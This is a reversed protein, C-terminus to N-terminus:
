RSLFLLLHPTTCPMKSVQPCLIVSLWIDLYDPCGQTGSVNRWGVSRAAGAYFFSWVQVRIGGGPCAYGIGSELSDAHLGKPLVHDNPNGLTALGFLPRPLDYQDPVVVGLERRRQNVNTSAGGEAILDRLENWASEM